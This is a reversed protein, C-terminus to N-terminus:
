CMRWRSRRWRRTASISTLTGCQASWRRPRSLATTFSTDNFNVIFYALCSLLFAFIIAYTKTFFLKDVFSSTWRFFRIITEEFSELAGNNANKRAIKKAENLKDQPNKIKSAM